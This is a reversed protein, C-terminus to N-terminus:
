FGGSLCGQGFLVWLSEELFSAVIFVGLSVWNGGVKENQGSIGFMAVYASEIRFIGLFGLFGLVITFSTRLLCLFGDVEANRAAKLGKVVIRTLKELFERFSPLQVLHVVAFWNFGLPASATESLILM